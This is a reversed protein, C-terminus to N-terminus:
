NSEPIWFNELLNRKHPRPSSNQITLSVKKELERYEDKLLMINEPKLDTHILKLDHMFAVSTLLQKAFSRIQFLPFPIFRNAKLFDFISISLLEFVM